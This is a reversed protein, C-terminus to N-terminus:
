IIEGSQWDWGRGQVLAEDMFLLPVQTNVRKINAKTSIALAATAPTVTRSYEPALYIALNYRLAAAYGPPYDMTTGLAAISTFQRWTYLVVQNNVTPVPWVTVTSIPYARDNYFWRPWSGTTNKLRIGQYEEESLLKAPLERGTATELFNVRDIHVPRPINWTSGTAMAYTGNGSTVSLVNRVIEYVLLEETNWQGIMENLTVLGDDAEAASPVEGSAIANLVRLANTILDRATAM